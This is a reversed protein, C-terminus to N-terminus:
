FSQNKKTTTTLNLITSKYHQTEHTCCLLDTIAVTQKKKIRKERYAKVSYSTSKETSYLLNKNTIKYIYTYM